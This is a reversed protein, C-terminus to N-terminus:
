AAWKVATLTARRVVAPTLVARDEATPTPTISGMEGRNTDGEAGRSPLFATWKEATLIPTIRGM